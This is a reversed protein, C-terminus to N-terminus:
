ESPHYRLSEFYATRSGMSADGRSFKIEYTSSVGGYGHSVFVSVTTPLSKAIRADLHDNERKPGVLKDHLFVASEIADDDSFGSSSALERVKVSVQQM